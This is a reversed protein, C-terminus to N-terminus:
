RKTASLKRWSAIKGVGPPGIFLVDRGERIFQGAALDYIIKRKISPNFSFDFDDLTRTERFAAGKQRRAVPTAPTCQRRGSPDVGPVGSALAM